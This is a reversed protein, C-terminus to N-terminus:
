TFAAFIDIVRHTTGASNYFGIQPGTSVMVANPVTQGAEFNVNPALPQTGPYPFATLYGATSPDVVTVNMVYVTVPTADRGIYLVDRPGLKGPPGFPSATRTDVSRFPSLAVLRGHEDARNEDYYGVVDALVDTRTGFNFVDIVGSAPVRVIVLNPVTANAGFNLNSALPRGIDGPFVTLYGPSATGTATVNMVVATVGTAPVGGAGTVKFALTDGNGLAGRVGGRGDRTDFLRTPNLPHFRSGRLGSSSAYYGVVDLVVNTTSSFNYVSLNGFDGLAVTPALPTYEGSALRRWRPGRYYVHGHDPLALELTALAVLRQTGDFPLSVGEPLALEDIQALTTLDFAHLSAPKGPQRLRRDM